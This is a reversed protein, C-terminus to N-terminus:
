GLQSDPGEVWVSGDPGYERKWIPLIEKIRDIIYHCAPFTEARHAAAVAIVVAAEGVEIRGVRHVISV